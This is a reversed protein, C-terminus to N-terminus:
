RSLRVPQTFLDTVIKRVEEFPLSDIGFSDTGVSPHDASNAGGLREVEDRLFAGPQLFILVLGCVLVEVEIRHRLNKQM